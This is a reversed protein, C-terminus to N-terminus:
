AGGRRQLVGASRRQCHSAVHRGTRPQGAPHGSVQRQWRCESFVREGARGAGPHPSRQGRHVCEAPALHCLGACGAPHRPCVPRGLAAQRPGPAGAGAHAARGAHGGVVRWGGCGPLAHTQWRAVSVPRAHGCRPRNRPWRLGAPSPQRCGPAAHFSRRWHGIVAAGGREAGDAGCHRCGGCQWRTGACGGRGAGGAPQRCEGHRDPCFRHNQPHLGLAARAAPLCLGHRRATRRRIIVHQGPACRCSNTRLGGALGARRPDIGACPGSAVPHPNSEDCELRERQNM